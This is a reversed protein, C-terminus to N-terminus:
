RSFTPDIFRRSFDNLLILNRGGLLIKVFCSRVRHRVINSKMLTKSATKTASKGTTFGIPQAGIKRDSVCCYGSEVWRIRDRSSLSRCSRAAQQKM